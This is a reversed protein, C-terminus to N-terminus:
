DYICGYMTFERVWLPLRVGILNVRAGGNGRPRADAHLPEHTMLHSQPQVIFFIPHFGHENHRELYVEMTGIFLTMKVLNPNFM